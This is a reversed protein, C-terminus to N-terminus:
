DGTSPILAIGITNMGFVSATTPGMRSTILEKCHFNSGLKEKWQNCRDPDDAHFVGARVPTDTSGLNRQLLSMIAERAKTENSAREVPKLIGQSVEFITKRNM